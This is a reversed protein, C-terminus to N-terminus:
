LTLPLGSMQLAEAETVNGTSGMVDAAEELNAELSRLKPLLNGDQSLKKLAKPSGDTWISLLTMTARQPLGSARITELQPKGVVAAIENLGIM